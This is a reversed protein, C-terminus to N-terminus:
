NVWEGQDFRKFFELVPISEGDPHSAARAQQTILVRPVSPYEEAFSRLGAFDRPGPHTTMKIELALLPKSGRAILLDVENGGKARWFYFSGECKRYSFLARLEQIVWQEFLHGKEAGSPPDSLNERLANTVGNDFFYFKPSGALEKRVKSKWPFLLNGVLTDELIQFYERITKGKVSTDSSM